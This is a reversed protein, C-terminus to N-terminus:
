FSKWKLWRKNKMKLVTINKDKLKAISYLVYWSWTIPNLYSINEQHPVHQAKNSCNTEKKRWIDWLLLACCTIILKNIIKQPGLHPRDYTTYTMLQRGLTTWTEPGLFWFLAPHKIFWVSCLGNTLTIVSIKFHYIYSVKWGYGHTIHQGSDM